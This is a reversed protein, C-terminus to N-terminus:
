FNFNEPDFGFRHNRNLGELAECDQADLQFDYLQTNSIIRAHKVSKPIVVINKQLDFRLIIQAPTKGYKKALSVILPDSMLNAGSGGLPSYAEIEIGKKRCFSILPNQTLYPHCEIQNVAPVIDTEQMLENIHHENFNSVGIARIRGEKYLEGMIKYSEIFKGPVPWHVLYLDLYDTGLKKLSEDFAQRQRGRRMDGNWLKTTIFIDKRPVGSKKIGDGVSQENKYTSATDIHCYGAQLAWAVANETEAGVESLYVGLGLLPIEVGNNLKIKSQIDM